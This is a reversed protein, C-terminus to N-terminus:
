YRDPTHTEVILQATLRNKQEVYIRRNGVIKDITQQDYHRITILELEQNYKVQYDKKLSEILRDLRKKNEDICISFSIASNQMLNIKIGTDAITRFIDSLNDEAIFSFDRPSISVLTQNKKFIFSPMLGDAHDIDSIITGSEDPNIFSKVRLPINKNQLPKITKPHIISAGYYALEIAERYSISDLKHTDEFYKPDANLVGPVDKWIIVEEANLCYAFISATYDSGERGLTTSIGNLTGGIFGQTIIIRNENDKYKSAISFDIEDTTLEWNVKAEKFTNDTIIVKRADFWINWVGTTKLYHHIIKTSLLEGYVVIQDYEYDYNTTPKLNLKKDLSKFLTNIDNLIISKDEAFLENIINHHYDKINNYIFSYADNNYYADTLQELANTTKGMASIVILLNDDIYNNVITVVNKVADASNVSAGGFKFVKM